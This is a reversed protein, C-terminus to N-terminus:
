FKKTFFLMLAAGTAIGAIAIIVQLSPAQWLLITKISLHYIIISTLSIFAFASYLLRYYKYNDKMIIQMKRKWKESAFISHFVSFFIWFVALLFHQIFM